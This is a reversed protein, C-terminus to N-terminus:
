NKVFNPSSLDVFVMIFSRELKFASGFSGILSKLERKLLNNFLIAVADLGLSSTWFSRYIEVKGEFEVIKTSLAALGVNAFFM